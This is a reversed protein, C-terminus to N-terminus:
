DSEDTVDEQFLLLYCVIFSMVTGLRFGAPICCGIAPLFLTKGAVPDTATHGAPWVPSVASVLLKCDKSLNPASRSLRELRYEMELFGM